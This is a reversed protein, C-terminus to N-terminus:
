LEPWLSAGAIYVVDSERIQKWSRLVRGPVLTLLARRYLDVLYQLFTQWGLAWPMLRFLERVSVEQLNSALDRVVRICHKRRDKWKMKEFEEETVRDGVMM